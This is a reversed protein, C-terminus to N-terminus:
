VRLRHLFARQTLREIEPEVDAVHVVRIDVARRITLLAKGILEVAQIRSRASQSQREIRRGPQDQAKDQM